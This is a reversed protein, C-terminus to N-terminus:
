CGVPNPLPLAVRDKLCYFVTDGNAITAHGMQTKCKPCVGIDSNILASLSTDRDRDRDDPSSALATLPNFVERKASSARDTDQARAPAPAQNQM